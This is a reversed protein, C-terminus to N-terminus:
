VVTETSGNKLGRSSHWRQISTSTYLFEIKPEFGNKYTTSELFKNARQNATFRADAQQYTGNSELEFWAEVQSVFEVDEAHCNFCGRRHPSDAM